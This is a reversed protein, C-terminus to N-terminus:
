VDKQSERQFLDAHRVFCLTQLGSKEKLIHHKKKSLFNKLSIMIKLLLTIQLLRMIILHERVEILRTPIIYKGFTKEKDLSGCSGFMIFKNAGTIWNVEVCGGSALASGMMTLYFAFEQGEFSSKYIPRSGNASGIEDIEECEFNDLLYVIISKSFIILCKEAINKKEGYFDKLSILPETENDYSDIIM